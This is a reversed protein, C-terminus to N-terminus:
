PLTLVAHRINASAESAIIVGGNLKIEVTKAIQERPVKFNLTASGSGSAYEARQSNSLILCPKDKVTVSENFTVAINDAAPEINKITPGGKSEPDWTGAFTWAPTIQEPKPSNPATALNDTFWKYDGGERHCNSYYEREGWVNTRDLDANKKKDADTAPGKGIPYIVRQPPRDVMTQSFNCNLFYFQADAHHRALVWGAVGDFQCRNLVFKMDPNAHGDHWVAATAKAEYFTCDIVYCWGRPCVFDVSGKFNCRAHYYRGKQGLWLSVTDAGDSLVDSDIIVARDGTGYIAFAHPGVVGATNAVTINELVFDDGKLNMVARGLEDPHQSFDDNLQPYEIRTGKRSQGRLTVCPADVRIKEKYVGDKVLVIKRERNTRPISAMADQVTKFNGSGDAAVVIDPPISDSNLEGGISSGAVIVAYVTGLSATLIRM